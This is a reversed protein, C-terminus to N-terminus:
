RLKELNTLNVSAQDIGAAAAKSFLSKADDIRGELFALVGQNNVTEALSQNARELYKKAAPVDGKNLAISSANLNATPDEPFMRVAVDFVENYESSGKEYTKALLFMEQLSLLQPRKDIIEKTEVVNFGRVTYNM